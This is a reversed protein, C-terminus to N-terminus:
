EQEEDHDYAEFTVSMEYTKEVQRNFLKNNPQICVRFNGSQDVVTSFSNHTEQKVIIRKIVKNSPDFIDISISGDNDISESDINEM